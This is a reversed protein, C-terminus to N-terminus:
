NKREGVNKEKYEQPFPRAGFTASILIVPLREKWLDQSLRVKFARRVPGPSSPVTDLLISVSKNQRPSQEWHGMGGGQGIM